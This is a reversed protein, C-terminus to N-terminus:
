VAVILPTGAALATLTSPLVDTEDIATLSTPAFMAVLISERCDFIDWIEAIVWVSLASKTM